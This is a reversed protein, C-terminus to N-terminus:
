FSNNERKSTGSFIKLSLPVWNVTLLNLFKQLDNDTSCTVVGGYWGLEFSCAWLNTSINLLANCFFLSRSVSTLLM